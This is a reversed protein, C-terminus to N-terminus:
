STLLTSLHREWQEVAERMEPMYSYRDYVAQIGSHVGSVHNIYREAIERSIHLEAWKSRLTRRLDHLTYDTLGAAADFKAKPKGWGNFITAPKASARNKAAPFLYLSDNIRPLADIVAFAMDGIPFTHPRRNKTVGSPLTITNEKRDIWGWELAAIEGRRQGTLALLAFIAHFPSRGALALKLAKALEQDTLTRDRSKTPNPLDLRDIPNTEIYHQRYAWRFFARIATYAHHRESPAAIAGLAKRLDRDTIGAINGRKFRFHKLLRTYDRRTRSAIDASALYEAVADDFATHTPMIKGLTKEAILRKAYSRAESLSVLPYAGIRKRRGSAVLVIFTKRTKGARLGFGKLSSDWLITGHPCARITADTLVM